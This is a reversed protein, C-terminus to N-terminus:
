IQVLDSGRIAVAHQLEHDRHRLPGLGALDADINVAILLDDFSRAFLLSDGASCCVRTPLARAASWTVRQRAGLRIVLRAILWPESVPPCTRRSDASSSIIRRKAPACRSPMPRNTASGTLPCHDQDSATNSIKPVSGPGNRGAPTQDDVVNGFFVAGDRLGRVLQGGSVDPREAPGVADM